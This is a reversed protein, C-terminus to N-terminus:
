SVSETLEATEENTGGNDETSINEVIPNGDDDLFYSEEVKWEGDETLPRGNIDIYEGNENLKYGYENIRNGDKDILNGEKDVLRLKEDVFKFKKLFKYEPLESDDFSYGIISLQAFKEAGKLAVDEYSNQLYDDLTPFVKSGDMNRTCASVLYNFRMNSAIGECTNSSLQSKPLLLKRRDERLEILRIAFERAQSLKIGKQALRFELDRIEEDLGTLEAQKEDSWIGQKRMVDDLKVALVAHSDLADNFFTNYVKQAEREDAVTPGVVKFQKEEGKYSATFVVESM